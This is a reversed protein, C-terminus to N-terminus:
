GRHQLRLGDAGHRQCDSGGKGIWLGGGMWWRTEKKRREVASDVKNSVSDKVNERSCLSGNMELM